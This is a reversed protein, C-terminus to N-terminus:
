KREKTAAAAAHRRATSLRRAIRDLDVQPTAIGKVSKKQFFALVYVDDGIQTTYMLRHTGAEDDERVEMVDRLNDKMPRADDSFTGEQAARIAGGMTKRVVESAATLDEQTSGLWFLRKSV